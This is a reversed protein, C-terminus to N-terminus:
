NESRMATEFSTPDSNAFFASQVLGDVFMVFQVEEDENEDEGSIYDDMWVPRRKIRSMSSSEPAATTAQLGVSQVHEVLIFLILLVRIKQM